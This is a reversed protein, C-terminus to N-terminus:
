ECEQEPEIRLEEPYNGNDLEEYMARLADRDVPGPISEPILGDEINKKIDRESLPTGRGMISLSGWPHLRYLETNQRSVTNVHGRFGLAHLLEHTIVRLKGETSVFLEPKGFVGSNIWIHSSEIESFSTTDACGLPYGPESRCSGGWHGDETFGFDIHIEGYPVESVNRPTVDSGVEIEHSVPLFNNLLNVAKEVLDRNQRSTDSAMRLVPREEWRIIRTDEVVDKTRETDFLAILFKVITDRDTNYCQWSEPEADQEMEPEPDPTDPVEVVPSQEAPPPGAVEEGSGGGCATIFLLVVSLSLITRM